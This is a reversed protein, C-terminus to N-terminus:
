GPGASPASTSFLSPIVKRNEAPSNLAKDKVASPALFVKRSMRGPLKEPM